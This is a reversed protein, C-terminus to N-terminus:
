KKADRKVSISGGDLGNRTEGKIRDLTEGVRLSVPPADEGQPLTVRTADPGRHADDMPMGNIWTTTKGSSRSVRGNITVLDESTVAIAAQVNAARRRDLDQRQQPTFFLRGLEQGQAYTSDAAAMCVLAGTLALLQRYRISISSLMIM